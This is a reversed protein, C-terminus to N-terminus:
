SWLKLATYIADHMPTPVNAEHGFRSATGSLWPVELRKGQLMDTLMSTGMEPPMTEFMQMITDKLPAELKLGKATSVRIVEMIAAELMARTDPDALIEGLPLRLLAAMGSLPALYAFKKWIETRIDDSVAAELGAEILTERITEARLQPAKDMIMEGQATAGPAFRGVIFRGWRGIQQIIGPTEVYAMTYAVGGLVMEPGFAKMLPEAATLGNQFSVIVTGAGVMPEMLKIAEDSDYLKVTFFVVDCAGVEEPDDTVQPHAIYTNGFAESKVTLGNLRMAKMQNDRAIFHVDQGAAALKAGLFGGVAGAGFIGIKM